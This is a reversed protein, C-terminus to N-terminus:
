IYFLALISLKNITSFKILIKKSYHQLNKILARKSILIITKSYFFNRCIITKLMISAISKILNESIIKSIKLKKLKKKFTNAFILAFFINILSTSLVRIFIAVVYM